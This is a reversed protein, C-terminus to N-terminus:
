KINYQNCYPSYILYVYFLEKLKCIFATFMENINRQFSKIKISPYATPELSPFPLTRIM